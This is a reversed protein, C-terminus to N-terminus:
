PLPRMEHLRRSEAAAELQLRHDERGGASGPEGPHSAAAARGSPDRVMLSGAATFIHKVKTYPILAIFALALVGHFWWLGLRLIGGGHASLGLARLGEAILAGVPSWWRTDWVDPQAQLWM